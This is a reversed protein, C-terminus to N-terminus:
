EDKQWMGKMLEKIKNKREVTKKEDLIYKEGQKRIVYGEKLDGSVSNLNLEIINFNEDQCIISDNEIRDIILFDM